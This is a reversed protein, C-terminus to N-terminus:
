IMANTNFCSCTKCVLFTLLLCSVLKDSDLKHLEAIKKRFAVLQDYLHKSKFKQLCGKKCSGSCRKQVLAKCTDADQLREKHNPGPKHRRKKPRVELPIEAGTKEFSDESDSLAVIAKPKFVENHM